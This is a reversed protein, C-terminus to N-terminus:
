GYINGVQVVEIASREKLISGDSVDHVIELWIMGVHNVKGIAEKMGCKLSLFSCFPCFHFMITKKEPTGGRFIGYLPIWLV